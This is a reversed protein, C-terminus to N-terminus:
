GYVLFLDISHSCSHQSSGEPMYGHLQKVTKLRSVEGFCFLFFDKKKKKKQSLSHNNKVEAM